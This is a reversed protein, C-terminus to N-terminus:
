ALIFILINKPFASNHYSFNNYLRLTEAAWFRWSADVPLVVLVTKQNNKRVQEWEQFLWRSFNPNLATAGHTDEEIQEHLSSRALYPVLWKVYFNTALAKSEPFPAIFPPLSLPIRGLSSATQNLTGLLGSPLSLGSVLHCNSPPTM